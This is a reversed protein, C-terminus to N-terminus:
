QRCEQKGPISFYVTAGKGTEGEVRVWGNHRTIIRQVTALGVGTGEYDDTHHLRQFLGFIKDCYKMDFGVGNDRVYYIKESNKEMVGFEILAQAREQTFKWANSLLNSMVIYLLHYDGCVTVAPQIKWEVQRQPSTPHLTKSIELCIESLDVDNIHIGSRSVRSLELIDDILQAMHASSKIIRQLHEQDGPDLKDKTDELLIQSFGAISRLPARLDHAISYSYSELEQNSNELAITRETVLEELHERYELLEHETRKRETIDRFLAIFGIVEEEANKVQTGLTETWFVTGDKRRYQVEYAGREANTGTRYRRRGQDYYDAKDAYLIETTEGILEEDNYGFMTYMAPNNMVIRRETDAFLVADPISNFMAEFEAKSKALAQEARRREIIEKQLQAIKNNLATFSKSFHERREIRMLILAPSEKFKSQVLSGSCNCPIIENNIRVKLPGPIMVRSRSWNRLTQEVKAANDCALDFLTLDRLVNIDIELFRTTANNAALIQGNSNILCMADPLPSAFVVFDEPSM